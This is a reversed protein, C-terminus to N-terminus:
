MHDGLLACIFITCPDPSTRSCGQMCPSADSGVCGWSAAGGCDQIAENRLSGHGFLAWIMSASWALSLDIATVGLCGGFLGSCPSNWITAMMGLCSGQSDNWSLWGNDPMGLVSSRLPGSGPGISLDLCAVVQAMTSIQKFLGSGPGNRFGDNWSPKIDPM